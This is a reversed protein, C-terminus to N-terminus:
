TIYENIKENDYNIQAMLREFTRTFEERTNEIKQKDEAIKSTIVKMQQQHQSIEGTLKKIQESKEHISKEHRKVENERGLVKEDVQDKLTKLFNSNEIDLHKKYTQISENLKAVTAGMTAATAFASCFRTKEDMPMKSLAQLSKKFELYDFGEQNNEELVALLKEM